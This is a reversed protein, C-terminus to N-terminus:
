LLRWLAGQVNKLSTVTAQICATSVHTCDPGADRRRRSHHWWWGADRELSAVVLVGSCDRSCMQSGLTDHLVKVNSTVSEWRPKVIHEPFRSM